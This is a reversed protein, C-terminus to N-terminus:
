NLEYEEEDSTSDSSDSFDSEPHFEPHFEPCGNERAWDMIDYHIYEHAFSIMREDWPCENACLWQLVELYGENAAYM